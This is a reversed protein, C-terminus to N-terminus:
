ATKGGVKKKPKNPSKAPMISKTEAKNRKIIRDLHAQAKKVFADQAREEVGPNHSAHSTKKLELYREITLMVNLSQACMKSLWARNGRDEKTEVGLEHAAHMEEMAHEIAMQQIQELQEQVTPKVKIM